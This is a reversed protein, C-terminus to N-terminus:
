RRTHILEHQEIQFVLWRRRAHGHKAGRWEGRGFLELRTSDLVLHMPGSRARVRPQRGAFAQGRRSLASHDAVHLELRLLALVSRTFVEAQRLALHFVLRLTM